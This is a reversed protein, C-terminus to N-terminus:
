INMTAMKMAACGRKKKRKCRRKTHNDSPRNEPPISGTPQQNINPETSQTRDTATPRQGPQWLNGDWWANLSLQSYLKDLERIDTPPEDGEQDHRCREHTGVVGTSADPEPMASPGSTPHGPIPGQTGQCRGIKQENSGGVAQLCSHPPHVPDGLGERAGPPDTTSYFTEQTHHTNM